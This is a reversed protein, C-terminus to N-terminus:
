CGNKDRRIQENYLSKKSKESTDLIRHVSDYEGRIKDIEEALIQCIQESSPREKIATVWSNRCLEVWEIPWGKIKPKPRYGRRVVLEEHM